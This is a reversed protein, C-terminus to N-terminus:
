RFSRYPRARHIASGIPQNVALVLLAATGARVAKAVSQMPTTSTRGFWWAALLFVAFVVIGDKAYFRVVGHAWGTHGALRNIAKYSNRDIRSM